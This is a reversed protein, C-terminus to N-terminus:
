SQVYFQWLPVHYHTILEKDATKFPTPGTTWKAINERVVFKRVVIFRQVGKIVKCPYKDPEPQLLKSNIWVMSSNGLAEMVIEQTDNSADELSYSTSPVKCYHEGALGNFFDIHWCDHQSLWSVKVNTDLVNGHQKNKAQEKENPAWSIVHSGKRKSM